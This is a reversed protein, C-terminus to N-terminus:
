VVVPTENLLGSNMDLASDATIEKLQIIYNHSTVYM